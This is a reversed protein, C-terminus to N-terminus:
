EQREIPLTIKQECYFNTERRQELFARFLSLFGASVGPSQPARKHPRKAEIEAFGLRTLYALPLTTSGSLLDVHRRMLRCCQATVGGLSGANEGPLGPCADGAGSRPLARASFHGGCEQSQGM